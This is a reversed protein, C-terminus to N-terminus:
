FPDDPNPDSKSVDCQQSEFLDLQMARQIAPGHAHWILGRLQNILEFVALAEHPTWYTPIAVPVPRKRNRTM